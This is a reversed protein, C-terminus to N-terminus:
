DREAFQESKKLRIELRSWSQFLNIVDSLGHKGVGVM